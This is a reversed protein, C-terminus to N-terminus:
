NNFCILPHHKQPETSGKITIDPALIMNAAIKLISSLKINLSYNWPGSDGAEWEESVADVFSPMIKVFWGILNGRCKDNEM